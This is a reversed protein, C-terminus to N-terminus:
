FNRSHSHGMPFFIFHGNHLWWFLFKFFQFFLWSLNKNLGNSHMKMLIPRFNHFINMQPCVCLCVSACVPSMRRTLINLGSIVSYLFQYKNFSYRKCKIIPCKTIIINLYSWSWHNSRTKQKRNEILIPWWTRTWVLSVSLYINQYM